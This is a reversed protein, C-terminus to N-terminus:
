DTACSGRPAPRRGPKTGSTGATTLCGTNVALETTFLTPTSGRYRVTSRPIKPLRWITAASCARPAIYTWPAASISAPRRFRSRLKTPRVKWFPSGPPAHSELEVWLWEEGAAPLERAVHVDVRLDEPYRCETKNLNDRLEQEFYKRFFKGTFVPARSDEIGRLHIHVVNFPFVKKGAARYSQDRIQDLIAFRIEAVEPPEDGPGQAFPSEFVTRGFKEFFDALTMKM